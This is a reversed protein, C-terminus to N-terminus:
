VSIIESEFRNQNEKVYTNNNNKQKNEKTVSRKNLNYNTKVVKM